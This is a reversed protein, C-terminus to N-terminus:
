SNSKLIDQWIQELAGQDGAQQLEQLPGNKGGGPIIDKISDM